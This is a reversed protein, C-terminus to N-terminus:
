EYTSDKKPIQHHGSLVLICSATPLFWVIGCKFLTGTCLCSTITHQTNVQSSLPRGGMKMLLYVYYMLGGVTFATSYCSSLMHLIWISDPANLIHVIIYLQQLLPLPYDITKQDYFRCPVKKNTANPYSYHPFLLFPNQLQEYM